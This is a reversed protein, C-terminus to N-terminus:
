AQRRKAKELEKGAQPDRPRAKPIDYINPKTNQQEVRPILFSSPVKYSVAEDLPFAATALPFSYSPIEPLSLKKQMPMNKQPHPSLTGARRSPPSHFSSMCRPLVHHGSKEVSSNPSANRVDAKELSAPTDYIWESKQPSPLTNCGGRRLAISPTPPINQRQSSGCM